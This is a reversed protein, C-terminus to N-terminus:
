FPIYDSQKQVPATVKALELVALKWDPVYGGGATFDDWDIDAPKSDWHWGDFAKPDPQPTPKTWWPENTTEVEASSELDSPSTEAQVPSSEVQVTTLDVPATEVPKDPWPKVRFDPRDNVPSPVSESVVGSLSSVLGMVKDLKEQALLEHFTAEEHSKRLESITDLYQIIETELKSITEARVSAEYLHIENTATLEVIRAELKPVQEYAQSMTAFASIIDNPANTM